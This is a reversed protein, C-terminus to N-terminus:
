ILMIYVTISKSETDSTTSRGGAIPELSPEMTPQRNAVPDSTPLESTPQESIPSNSIPEESPEITTPLQQTNPMGTPQLSPSDSITKSSSPSDSIPFETPFPTVPRDTPQLSPYPTIPRLSPQRTTPSETTPLVDYTPSTTPSADSIAACCLIVLLFVMFQHM